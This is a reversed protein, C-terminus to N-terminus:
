PLGRNGDAGLLNVEVMQRQESTFPALLMVGANNVLIDTTGLENKVQNAAAVLSDRRRKRRRTGSMGPARKAERLPEDCSGPHGVIM